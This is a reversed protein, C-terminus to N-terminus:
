EYGDSFIVDPDLTWAEVPESPVSENLTAALSTVVYRHRQQSEASFDAFGPM